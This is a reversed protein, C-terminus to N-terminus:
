LFHRGYAFPMDREDPHALAYTWHKMIQHRRKQAESGTHGRKMEEKLRCIQYLIYEESYPKRFRKWGTTEKRQADPFEKKLSQFFEEKIKEEMKKAVRQIEPNDRGETIKFGTRTREVIRIGKALEDAISAPPREMGYEEITETIHTRLEPCHKDVYQEHYRDREADHLDQFTLRDIKEFSSLPFHCDNDTIKGDLESCSMIGKLHSNKIKCIGDTTEGGIIRCKFEPKLDHM